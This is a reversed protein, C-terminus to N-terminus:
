LFSEIQNAYNNPAFKEEIINKAIDFNNTKNISGFLYKEFTENNITKTSVDIINGSLGLLEALEGAGGANYCLFPTEFDIAEFIIRGLAEVKNLHLILNCNDYIASKENTFGKFNYKLNVLSNLENEFKKFWATEINYSGYFNLEINIRKSVSISKMLPLIDNLGKSEIVRGVIGIVLLPSKGKESIGNNNESLKYPDYVIKPVVNSIVNSKIYNSVAILTINGTLISLKSNCDELLRIAVVFKRFPLVKALLKVYSLHGAENLFLNKKLFLLQLFVKFYLWKINEYGKVNYSNNKLKEYFVSHKPVYVKYMKNSGELFDFLVNESGYLQGSPSVIINSKTKPM